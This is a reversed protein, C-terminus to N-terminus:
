DLIDLEIKLVVITVDDELKRGAQFRFLDDLLADLIEKASKDFNQRIIEYLPKKGYLDGNINRAEWIGDTGLLIIQGKALASKKNEKYQWNQNVGLALGPGMLNEFTNTNPNYLIAPDHGARVWRLNRHPLDVTLFFLTMFRGSDEVDRSLQRNVDTIISSINNSQMSRQRISARVTAMLLASPIGHDSVDGVVVGIKGSEGERFHL